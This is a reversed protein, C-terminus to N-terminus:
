KKKGGKKRGKDNEDDAEDDTSKSVPKKKGKEASPSRSHARPKRPKEDRKEESEDDTSQSVHKPSRSRARPKRPEEDEEEEDPEEYDSADEYEDEDPAQSAPKAAAAASSSIKAAASKKAAREKLIGERQSAAAEIKVEKPPRNQCIEPPCSCHSGCYVKVAMGPRSCGCKGDCKGGWSNPKSPDRKCGCGKRAALAAQTAAKMGEIAVDKKKLEDEAADIADDAVCACAGCL